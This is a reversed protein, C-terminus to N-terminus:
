AGLGRLSFGCREAGRVADATREVGTGCLGPRAATRRRRLDPAAEEPSPEPQALTLTKNDQRAM